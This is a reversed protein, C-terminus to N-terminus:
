RVTAETLEAVQDDGALWETHVSEGRGRHGEVRAPHVGSKGSGRPSGCSSLHVRAAAGGPPRGPGRLGWPLTRGPRGGRLTPPESRSGEGVGGGAGAGAGGKDPAEGSLPGRPGSRVRGGAGSSRRRLPCPLVLGPRSCPTGSDSPPPRVVEVGGAGGRVRGGSQVTGAPGGAAWM